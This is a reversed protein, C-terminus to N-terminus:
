SVKSDDNILVYRPELIAVSPKRTSLFATYINEDVVGCVSVGRVNRVTEGYTGMSRSMQKRNISVDILVTEM